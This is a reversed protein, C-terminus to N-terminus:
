INSHHEDVRADSSPRDRDAQKIQKRRNNVKKQRRLGHSFQSEISDNEGEDADQLPLMQRGVTSKSSDGDVWPEDIPQASDVQAVQVKEEEEALAKRKKESARIVRQKKQVIEDPLTKVTHDFKAKVAPSDHYPSAVQQLLSYCISDVCIPETDFAMDSGDDSEPLSWNTNQYGNLSSVVDCDVAAACPEYFEPQETVTQSQSHTANLTANAQLSSTQNITANITRTIHIVTASYCYTLHCVPQMKMNRNSVNCDSDSSCHMPEIAVTVPLETPDLDVHIASSSASSNLSAGVIEHSSSNVTVRVTQSQSSNLRVPQLVTSVMENLSQFPVDVLPNAPTLAATDFQPDSSDNILRRTNISSEENTLRNILQRVTSLVSTPTQAILPASSVSTALSSSWCVTLCASLVIHRLLM